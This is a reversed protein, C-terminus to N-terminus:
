VASLRGMLDNVSHRTECLSGILEEWNIGINGLESAVMKALKVQLATNEKSSDLVIETVRYQMTHTENAIDDWRYQYNQVRQFNNTLNSKIQM